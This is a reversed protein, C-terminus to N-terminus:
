MIKVQLRRAKCRLKKNGFKFVCKIETNSGALKAETYFGIGATNVFFGIGKLPTPKSKAM